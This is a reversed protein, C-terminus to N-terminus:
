PSHWALPMALNPFADGCNSSRCWVRVFEMGDSKWCSCCSKDDGLSKNRKKKSISEFESTTCGEDVAEIAEREIGKRVEVEIWAKCGFDRAVICSERSDVRGTARVLAGARPWTPM